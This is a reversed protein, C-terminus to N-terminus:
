MELLHKEFQLVGQYNQQYGSIDPLDLNIIKNWVANILKKFETLEEGSFSQELTIIEGTQKDPEVFQLAAGTFSYNSWDRSNEVLLQYFMLQQRYKHLKIKEYDTAGKWDRSAKGTKYDTVCITKELKNIDALDLAGTLRVGDIIIGQGAFSLETLQSPAFTSAKQELFARLSLHGKERYTDYDNKSLHQGALFQDFNNLISELPPLSGDVRVSNHAQQLAAHIATGYGASATKAQPFRLLNNLLFTQPGGRSVDIFNNLHTASLKYKELNEALLSKLDNSIPATLHGYWETKATDVLNDIEDQTLQNNVPQQSLFSALETEKGNSATTSYSIYLAKRARTVAVYFLRIREDYSNGANQLTLNAPYRIIRSRSSVREGWINDIAGIIFVHLFQQGKSKHATMLNIHGKLHDARHRVVTLSAGLQRYLDIFDLFQELSPSETLYHERLRDRITRLTELADLYTDPKSSLQESSFFYEYIPSTFTESDKDPEINGILQDIQQEFNQNASAQGQEILWNALPQFVPNTQMAELWLSRGRWASLSLSWIDSSSFGFSPHAVLKPLLTNANDLDSNQIFVIIRALLEILEVLPHDLANDRREYNVLIGQENLYPLIDVLEKHNRAIITIEDAPAGQTILDKIQQAVAAKESSASQYHNIEVTSSDTEYWPTLQKSIGQTTNELRDQSQTIIKRSLDLIEPVSRYNDALVIIAPDQYFERFRQINGIDAGQFSYIAQDDDGVAMVNPQESNTLAFLLRLQALNTDQFEDVMVYQFKEQLNARLDAHNEVAKIVNLIMDDYDYLNNQQMLAEYSDYIDVTALLKAAHKSDKLINKKSVDKDCWQNKWATIASTKGTELAEQSAHAISLALASSYSSIGAPLVSQELEAVKTALPAFLEITKKSIRESFIYAIDDAVIDIVRQNDSIILRLEDGTLGSKKFESAISKVDSLYVYDDGNKSALPHQWDLNDFIQRLIQYQALEDAPQFEAGRFFYERNQNIIEVGFSHFTHIAVKYADEGIIERLRQRMNIAGSDTFTLCLISSPLTDTQRLVQATRMSLLETKGTGPGAIVLLPGDIQDVAKKQNQNLKQYRTEFDM